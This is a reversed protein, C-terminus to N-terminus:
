RPQFSKQLTLTFLETCPTRLSDTHTKSKPSSSVSFLSQIAAAFTQWTSNNSVVFLFLSLGTVITSIAMTGKRGFRPLDVTYCALFSGPLGVISTILYNSYVVDSPVPETGSNELYQVLFANFLPYAMGITLWIIWLLITTFGLKWTGFLAQVKNVSYKNLQKKTLDSMRLGPLASDEGALQHMTHEDLWTKTGNYHAVRRVVEIAESKKNRSLLFKPSELLKFLYFRCVFMFMTFLGLVAIFYRWGRNDKSECCPKESTLSCPILNEDCSYKPILYWAVTAAAVQGIPWWASLLTLLKNDAAPIFELFLAGDVPLNGGVGVGMLAFLTATIAWTPGFSILIGFFGTIFLTSNFTIRRGLVDSLLGWGMSGIGMGIYLIMTTYRVNTESLGFEASLSPLSL